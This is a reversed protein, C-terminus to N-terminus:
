RTPAPATSRRVLSEVVPVFRYPGLVTKSARGAAVWDVVLDFTCDCTQTRFRLDFVEPNNRSATFPFATPKSTSYTSKRAPDDDPTAEPQATELDVTMPRVAVDGWKCGSPSYTGEAPPAGRHRVVAHIATILVEQEHPNQASLLITAPGALGEATHPSGPGTFRYACNTNFTTTAVLSGAPAQAQPPAAVSGPRTTTTTETAATTSAGASATPATGTPGQDPVARWSSGAWTTLPEVPWFVAIVALSVVVWAAVASWKRANTAGSEGAGSGTAGGEAGNVHVILDRGIDGTQLVTGDVHGSMSNQREGPDPM